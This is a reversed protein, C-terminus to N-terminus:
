SDKLAVFMASSRRLQPVLVSMRFEDTMVRMCLEAWRVVLLNCRARCPLVIVDDVIIGRFFVRSSVFPISVRQMVEHTM